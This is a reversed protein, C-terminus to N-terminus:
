RLAMDHVGLHYVGAELGPLKGCVLYLEIHYLAGTCAAARFAMRGGPIHLWKTVGASFHLVARLTELEPVQEEEPPLAVTSIATLAPVGSPRSLDPLPLAPLDAYLKYPRPQNSFDLFHGSSRM